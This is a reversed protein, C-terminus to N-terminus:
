KKGELREMWWDFSRRVGTNEMELKALREALEMRRTEAEVLRIAVDATQKDDAAIREAQKVYKDIDIMM